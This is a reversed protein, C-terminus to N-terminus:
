NDEESKNENGGSGGEVIGEGKGNETWEAHKKALSFQHLLDERM